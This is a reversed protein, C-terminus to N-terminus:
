KDDPKSLRPGRAGPAERGALLSGLAGLGGPAAPTAAAELNESQIARYVEERFISTSRPAEIGIRVHDGKIAVVTIRVDDGIVVSEDVKRTLVLM